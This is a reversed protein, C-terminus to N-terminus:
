CSHQTNRWENQSGDEEKGTLTGGDMAEGIAWITAGVERGGDVRGRSERGRRERWKEVGRRAGWEVTGKRVTTGM